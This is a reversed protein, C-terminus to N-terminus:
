DGACSDIIRQYEEQAASPIFRELVLVDGGPDPAYQCFECDMNFISCNQCQVPLMDIGGKPIFVFFLITPSLKNISAGMGDDPKAAEPFGIFRSQINHGIDHRGPLPVLAGM